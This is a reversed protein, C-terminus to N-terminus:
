HAMEAPDQRYYDRLVNYLEFHTNRLEKPSNFFVETVVAFFEAESTGAYPDLFTTEGHSIRRQLDFYVNGCVRSWREYQESGRLPPTGDVENDLMDLKHAFEHFVVNHGRGPKRSDRRVADWALIVPGRVHAQGLIPQPPGVVAVTTDFLSRQREPPMMTSPYVLITQVGKYLGHDVGLLLLCANAAITVRIEDTIDLGACGVFNKDEIFAAILQELRSRQDAQLRKWHEVNREVIARWADPFPREIPESKWWNFM